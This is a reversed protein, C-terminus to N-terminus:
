FKKCCLTMPPSNHGCYGAGRPCGGLLAVGTDGNDCICSAERKMEPQNTSALAVLLAVFLCRIIYM